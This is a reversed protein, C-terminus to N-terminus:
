EFIRVYKEVFPTINFTVLTIAPFYLARRIHANGKKSSKTKGRRKGAQDEVVDYGAYKVVQRRNTFWSFGNTEALVVAVTM